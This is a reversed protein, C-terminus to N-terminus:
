DTTELKFSDVWLAGRIKSDFRLSENRRLRVTVAHCNAPPIFTMKEQSWNRSGLVMPSKQYLGNADYGFVEVYPGQDTSIGKSKWWFTLEHRKEPTVPVVQYIHQWSLNERGHFSVRLAHAGQHSQGFIRRGQWGKGEKSAYMRWGFGKGSIAKEFEPNTMGSVGAYQRWLATATVMRKQTVLFHVYKELLPDTVTGGAEITAWVAQAAAENESQILWELYASRNNQSLLSIAQDTQNKTYADLLYFLESLWKKRDMLYNLNKRFIDEQVLDHALLTHALKWRLVQGARADCFVAIRRATSVNGTEFEAEALKLWADMHFPDRTVVQRFLAAARGTNLQAWAQQGLGYLVEPFRSLAKNDQDRYDFTGYSARRHALSFSVLWISLVALFFTLGITYFYKKM